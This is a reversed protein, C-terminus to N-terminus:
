KKKFWRYPAVGYRKKINAVTTERRAGTGRVPVMMHWKTDKYYGASEKKSIVVTVYSLNWKTDNRETLRAIEAGQKKAEALTSAYRHRGASVGVLYTKEIM